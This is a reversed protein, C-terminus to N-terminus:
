KEEATVTYKKDVYNPFKPGAVTAYYTAQVSHYSHHMVAKAGLLIM